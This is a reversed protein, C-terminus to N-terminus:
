CGKFVKMVFLAFKFNVYGWSFYKGWVGWFIPFFTIVFLFCINALERGKKEKGVQADLDLTKIVAGGGFSHGCVVVDRDTIMRGRFTALNFDNDEDFPKVVGGFQGANLSKLLEM